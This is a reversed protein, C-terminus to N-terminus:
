SRVSRCVTPSISKKFRRTVSIAITYLVGHNSSYVGVKLLVIHRWLFQSIYNAVVQLQRAHSALLSCLLLNYDKNLSNEEGVPLTHQCDLLHSGRFVQLHRSDGYPLIEIDEETFSTSDRRKLVANRCHFPLWPRSLQKQLTKRASAMLLSAGASFIAIVTLIQM